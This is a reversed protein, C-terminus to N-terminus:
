EYLGDENVIEILDVDSDYPSSEFLKDDSYFMTDAEDFSDAEYTKEYYERSEYRVTYKAM